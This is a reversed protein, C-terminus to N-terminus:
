PKELTADLTISGGATVTMTRQWPRMGEKEVSVLHEGPSLQITSPTNGMFKGDVNIDAGQPTSKVTVNAPQMPVDSGAHTEAQPNDTPAPEQQQSPATSTEAVQREDSPKLKLLATKAEDEGVPILRGGGRWNGTLIVMELYVTENPKVEVELPAAKKMSSELNHKGPALQLTIYHGNKLRGAENGDVYVSPKLASGVYKGPRYVIVTGNQALAPLCAAALIFTVLIRNM